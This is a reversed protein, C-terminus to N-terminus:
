VINVGTFSPLSVKFEQTHPIYLGVENLFPKVSARFTARAEDNGMEKLHYKHYVSLKKSKSDPAGFVDMVWPWWDNLAGQLESLGNRRWSWERIGSRGHEVHGMEEEEIAHIMITWPGYPGQEFEALQQGAAGDMLFNFMLLHAWSTFLEPHQFIRLIRREQKVNSVRRVWVSLGQLLRRVRDAHTLEEIGVHAIFAAKEATPAFVPCYRLYNNGGWYECNEQILLLNVLAERFESPMEKPSWIKEQRNIKELLAEQLQLEEVIFGM